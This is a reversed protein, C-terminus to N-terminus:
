RDRYPELTEAIIEDLTMNGDVYAHAYARDADSPYMGELAWSAFTETVSRRREAKGAVDTDGVQLGM